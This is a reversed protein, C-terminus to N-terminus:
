YLLRGTMKRILWSKWVLFPMLMGFQPDVARLNSSELQIVLPQNYLKFDLSLQIDNSDRLTENSENPCWSTIQGKM